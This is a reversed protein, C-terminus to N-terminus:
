VANALRQRIESITVGRGAAFDDSAAELTELELGPRAMKGYQGRFFERMAAASIAREGPEDPAMGARAELWPKECHTRRRLESASYKKYSEWISRIFRIQDATMTGCDRAEHGAIAGNKYDAFIPYVERVVPGHVWAEVEGEFFPEDRIALSWGQVYYLLKQLRLHSMPEPECEQEALWLLYRAVDVASAM